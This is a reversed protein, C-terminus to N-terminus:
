INKTKPKKQCPNLCPERCLLGTSWLLSTIIGARIVFDINCCHSMITLVMMFLDHRRIPVVAWRVAVSLVDRVIPLVRGPAGIIQFHGRYLLNLWAGLELRFLSELDFPCSAILLRNSGLFTLLRCALHGFLLVVTRTLDIAWMLLLFITFLNEILNFHSPTCHAHDSHLTWQVCSVGRSGIRDGLFARCLLDLRDFDCLHLWVRWTKGADTGVAKIMRLQAAPWRCHSFAFFDWAFNFTDLKDRGCGFTLSDLWLGMPLLLCGLDVRCGTSFFRNGNLVLVLWAVVRASEGLWVLLAQLLLLM